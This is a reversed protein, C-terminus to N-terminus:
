LAECLHQSMEELDNLAELQLFIPVFLIPVNYKDKLKDIQRQINKYEATAQEEIWLVDKKLEPTSNLQQIHSNTLPPVPAPMRNCIMGRLPYREETIFDLFAETESSTPNQASNVLWFHSEPSKILGQCIEASAELANAVSSFLTFFQAIDQITEQGLVRKFIGTLVNGGMSLLGFDRRKLWRLASKSLLNRIRDPAQLFDIANRSPPTDIVIAEFEKSQVLEIVQLIAMYEQIGSMKDRAFQYYRNNGLQAFEQATSHRQAFNEFIEGADLMMAELHGTSIPVNARKNKLTPLHLSDALRRAPDITLIITRLGTKALAIGLAAATTTKGVGGTGCTFYLRTM